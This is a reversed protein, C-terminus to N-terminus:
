RSVQQVTSISPWRLSSLVGGAARALPAVTWVFLHGLFAVGRQM